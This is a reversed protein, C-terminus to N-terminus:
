AKLGLEDRAYTLCSTLIDMELRLQAERDLGTVRPLPQRPKNARVLSLTRALYRGNREPFTVWYKETLCSIKLPDRTLMDLSFHLGPRKSQLLPVIRKLDLIGQGLPVESLLFGDAYEEVGMDKIHTNIVFPALAEILEMPDDLLSLNNGFDINAGLYESSYSKLLAPMEEATWDKHNELGLPLRHKDVIPVARALKAKSDAVFSKWQDLTAFTEYRRGSLCASRICLAGAEKGARVTQEFQATDEPPLPLLLEFYMGLEEARNRVRKLYDPELSALTAQVGGAGISHAKDLFELATRPPRLIAFADPTLGMSTRALPPTPQAFAAASVASSALFNRRTM